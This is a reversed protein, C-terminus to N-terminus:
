SNSSGSSHRVNSSIDTKVVAVSSASSSTTAAATPSTSTISTSPESTSLLRIRPAATPPDCRNEISCVMRSNAM